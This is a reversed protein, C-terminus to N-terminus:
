SNTSSRSIAHLQVPFTFRVQLLTIGYNYMSEPDKWQVAGREYHRVAKQINPSVGQQGWFLMQAIAQQLVTASNNSFVFHYFTRVKNIDRLNEKSMTKSHFHHSFTHEADPDVSCPVEAEAAGSRAQLRLWQFIHHDENTQLNLM